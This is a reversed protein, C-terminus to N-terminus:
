DGVEVLLAGSDVHDGARCHIARVVGDRQAAITHEIKMAELVVLPQHEHV